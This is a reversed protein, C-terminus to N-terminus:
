RGADIEKMKLKLLTKILGVPIRKGFPFHLTAKAAKYPKMQSAVKAPIKHPVIFVSVHKAFAGFYALRGKYGPFKYEYFPMGYSMSERAQPAAAKITARLTKMMERAPVPANAIYGAVTGTNKM